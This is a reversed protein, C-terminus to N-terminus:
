RVKDQLWAWVTNIGILAIIGFIVSPTKEGADPRNRIHDLANKGLYGLAVFQFIRIIGTVTAQVTGDFSAAYASTSYITLGAILLRAHKNIKM